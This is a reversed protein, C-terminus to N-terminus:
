DTEEITTEKVITTVEPEEKKGDREVIKHSHSESTGDETENIVHKHEEIREEAM